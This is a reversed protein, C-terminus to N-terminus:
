ISSPASTAPIARVHARSAGLASYRGVTCRWMQNVQKGRRKGLLVLLGYAQKQHTTNSAKINHKEQCHAWCHAVFGAGKAVPETSWLRRGAPSHHQTPRGAAQERSTRHRGVAHQRTMDHERPGYRVVDPQTRLARALGPRSRGWLRAPRGCRSPRVRHRRLSVCRDDRLSSADLKDAVTIAALRRPRTVGARHRCGGGRHGWGGGGSVGFRGAGKGM